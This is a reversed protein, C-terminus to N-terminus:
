LPQKSEKKELIFRILLYGGFGCFLSFLMIGPNKTIISIMENMTKIESYGMWGIAINFSLGEFLFFSFITLLQWSIPRMNKERAINGIKRCLFFLIILETM